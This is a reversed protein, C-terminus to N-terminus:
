LYLRTAQNWPGQHEQTKTGIGEKLAAFTASDAQFEIKEDLFERVTSLHPSYGRGVSRAPCQQINKSKM